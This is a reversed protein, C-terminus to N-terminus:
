MAKLEEVIRDSFDDMFRGEDEVGLMGPWWTMVMNLTGDSKTSALNLNFPAGTGDASQSFAMDKVKVGASDQPEGDEFVGVNSVSFSCDPRQAAKKLTWGKFDSLYRLLGVPQDSLTSSAQQLHLTVEKAAEWEGNSLKGIQGRENILITDEVASAMNGMSARAEPICKRLDLATEAKFSTFRENRARLAYALARSTLVILLGTLKVERTRCLSLVKDITARTVQRHVLATEIPRSRDPMPPRTRAGRWCDKSRESSIGFIRKLTRPCYEGILPGLLFAWSMNLSAAKELPPFLQPESPPFFSQEDDYPLDHKEQLAHRLSKHFLLGSKGDAIAHSYSFAVLVETSREQPRRSPCVYVRWPPHTTQNAIRDNHAYNLLAATEDDHTALISEADLIKFHDEIAMQPMQALQPQSTDSDVVVTSLVPHEAICHKLARTIAKRLTEDEHEEELIYTASVVITGYLALDDRVICRLENLSAM